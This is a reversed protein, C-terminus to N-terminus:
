SGRLIGVAEAHHRGCPRLRRGALETGVQGRRLGRDDRRVRHEPQVGLHSGDSGGHFALFIAATWATPMSPARVPRVELRISSISPVVGPEARTQYPHVPHDSEASRPGVSAICRLEGRVGVLGDPGDGVSAVSPKALRSIGPRLAVRPHRRHDACDRTQSARLARDALGRAIGEGDALGAVSIDPVMGGPSRHANGRRQGDLVEARGELVGGPHDLGVHAGRHDPMSKPEQSM